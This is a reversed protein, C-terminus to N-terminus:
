CTDESERQLGNRLGVQSKSREYTCQIIRVSRNRCRCDVYRGLLLFWVNKLAKLLNGFYLLPKQCIKPFFIHLLKSRCCNPKRVPVLYKTCLVVLFHLRRQPHSDYISLYAQINLLGTCEM